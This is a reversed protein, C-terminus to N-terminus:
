QIIFIIIYFVFKMNLAIFNFIFFQSRLCVNNKYLLFWTSFLSRLLSIVMFFLLTGSIQDFRQLINLLSYLSFFISIYPNYAILHWINITSFYFNIEKLVKRKWWMIILIFLILKRCDFGIFIFFLVEWESWKIM